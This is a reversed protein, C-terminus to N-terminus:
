SAEEVVAELRGSDIADRFHAFDELNQAAYAEAFATIARDLRDSRGAYAAISAADGSRAHGRALIRGCLDAYFRLQDPTGGDIEVSGKWDRLQRVYFHRGEIRGETWGLFIDSQAQALRQGEVVRRGNNQYPSDGLHAELVSAQAEKAQLFFSDAEDRGQLLLIICRTGVSGVGVVKLGIDVLRYRDLLWHRDANLTSKYTELAELAAGELVDPGYDFPLARLPYLVPPDHRIQRRGDVTETLKGVAQRSDKSRARREFRQLDVLRREVVIPV